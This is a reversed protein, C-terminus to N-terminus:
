FAKGMQARKILERVVDSSTDGYKGRKALEALQKKEKISIRMTFVETRDSYPLHSM